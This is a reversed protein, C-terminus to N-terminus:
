EQNTLLHKVISELSDMRINFAGSIRRYPRKIDAAVLALTSEPYARGFAFLGAPDADLSRVACKIALPPVGRRRVVLDAQHGRKDRWYYFHRSQLKGIMENLVIHEWLLPEMGNEITSWGKHCCVFGTDFAYVRPASTIETPRHTSYPRLVYVINARELVALYNTITTRSVGCDRAFRTSEFIGGSEEMLLEIFRQFSHRREIRFLEQIDRYLFSDMWQQFEREVLIESTFFSPLGGHLMRFLLDTNEFDRQDDTIMPTLFIEGKFVSPIDGCLSTPNATISATAIIRVARHHECAIKLLESPNNLRHIADLVIRKGDLESFFRNPSYMLRRTGPLECDFYEIEGLSKCIFTKGSQRVGSLWLISNQQWLREILKKWFARHVM